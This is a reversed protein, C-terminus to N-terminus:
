VALDGGLLDRLEQEEADLAQIEKRLRRALPLYAAPEGHRRMLAVLSELAGELRAKHRM